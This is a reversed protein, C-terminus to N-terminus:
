EFTPRLAFLTAAYGTCGKGFKCSSRRVRKRTSRRVPDAASSLESDSRPPSAEGIPKRTGAKVAFFGSRRMSLPQDDESSTEEEEHATPRGAFRVNMKRLELEDMAFQEFM